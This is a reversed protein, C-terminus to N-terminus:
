ARKEERPPMPRRSNIDVTEAAKRKKYSRVEKSQQARRQFKAALQTLFEDEKDNTLNHLISAFQQVLVLAVGDSITPTIQKIDMMKTVVDQCNKQEEVEFREAEEIEKNENFDQKFKSFEKAPMYKPEAQAAKLIDFAYKNEGGYKDKGLDWFMTSPFNLGILVSSLLAGDNCIKAMWRARARGASSDGKHVNDNYEAEVKTVEGDPANAIAFLFFLCCATPSKKEREKPDFFKSIARNAEFMKGEEINKGLGSDELEKKELNAHYERIQNALEINLFIAKHLYVNRDGFKRIVCTAENLDKEAYTWTCIESLHTPRTTTTLPPM